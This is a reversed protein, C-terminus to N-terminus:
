ALACFKSAGCCQDFWTTVLSTLIAISKTSNAFVKELKNNRSTVIFLLKIYNKVNVDLNEEM